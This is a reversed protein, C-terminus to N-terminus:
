WGAVALGDQRGPWLEAVMSRATAEVSVRTGRIAFRQQVLPEEVTLQAVFCLAFVRRVSDRLARIEAPVQVGPTTVTLIVLDCEQRQAVDAPPSGIM